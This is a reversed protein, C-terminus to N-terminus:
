TEIEGLESQRRIRQIRIPFLGNGLKSSKGVQEVPRCGRGFQSFEAVLFEAVLTVLVLLVAVEPRALGQM